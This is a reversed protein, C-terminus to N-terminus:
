EVPLEMLLNRIDRYRSWPLFHDEHPLLTDYLIRANMFEKEMYAVNEVPVFGDEEGHMIYVDCTLQALKEKLKVLDKKLYILERNSPRFAGPLLYRLPIVDMVYRWREKNEQQPDLAGALIIIGRVAEPHEIALLAVLPGGLSHGVLYMPRDHGVYDLVPAIVTSQDELNLADGFDSHGFGPRDISVMFFKTLLLSDRMFQSFDHWSGPSGHIFVLAPLADNGTHLFHITRGDELLDHIELEVGAENFEELAKKDTIRFTCSNLMLLIGILFLLITVYFARSFLM